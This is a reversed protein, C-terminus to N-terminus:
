LFAFSVARIIDIQNKLLQRIKQFGFAMGTQKEMSRTRFKKNDHSSISRGDVNKKSTRKKTRELPIWEMILKPIRAEPMRKIHDYWQLRKKEIFDIIDPKGKVGM